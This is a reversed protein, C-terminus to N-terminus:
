SVTQMKPKGHTTWQLGRGQERKKAHASLVSSANYHQQLYEGERAAMAEAMCGLHLLIRWRILITLYCKM